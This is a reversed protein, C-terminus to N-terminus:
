GAMTFLPILEGTDPNFEWEASQHDGRYDWFHYILRWEGNKKKSAEWGIPYINYKGNRTAADKLSQELTQALPKGNVQPKTALARKVIKEAEPTLDPLSARHAQRNEGSRNLSKGLALDAQYAFSLIVALSVLSRFIGTITKM